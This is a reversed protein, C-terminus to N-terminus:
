NSDNNKSSAPIRLKQGIKLKKPDEIKNIKSLEDYSVHFKKAITVLKDGKVVTYSRASDKVAVATEKVPPKVPDEALKRHPTEAPKAVVEAVPKPTARAVPKVVDANSRAAVGAGAADNPAPMSQKVSHATATVPGAQEVNRAKLSNFIYIGSVAVVHLVIFIVLAKGFSMSPEDGFNEMARQPM